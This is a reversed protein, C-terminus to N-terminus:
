VSVRVIQYRIHKNGKKVANYGEIVRVGNSVGKPWESGVLAGPVGGLYCCLCELLGEESGSSMLVQTTMDFVLM